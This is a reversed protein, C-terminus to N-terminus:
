KRTLQADYGAERVAQILSEPSVSGTKGTRVVAESRTYDVEVQTVGPVKLLAQRVAAACGECTMGDLKLVIKQQNDLPVSQTSAAGGGLLLGIWHPFLAFLVIVVTAVWLGARNFQGLSSRRSVARGIDCSACSDASEPESRCCSHRGAPPTETACCADAPVLPGEKGTLGMWASNLTTQYTLYWALGLLTFTATLFLSRYQEFFGGVGAASIGFAILLLPLWCCASGVIATSVAGLTALWAGKERTTRPKLPMSCAKGVTESEGDTYQPKVAM